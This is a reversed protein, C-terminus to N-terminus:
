VEYVEGAVAMSLPGAWTTEAEQRILDPDTWPQVHTLVLNKVQAETALQGAREGTLHIGRVPEAKTFAAESLLLDAGFAMETITPTTDTDGTFAFVTDRSGNQEEVRYGFTPVNHRAQYPIVKLPGVQFPIGAHAVQFDFVSHLEEETAWGDIQQVRQEVNEPGYILQRGNPANPNWRRHVYLSVVDGMHDAHGHSFVVVDVDSPDVYKSLAGFSGPGLDFVVSWTRESGNEDPGNAQLLYSSAPSDPGSMSGSCGVITLQM